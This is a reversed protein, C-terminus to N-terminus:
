RNALEKGVLEHRKIFHKQKTELALIRMKYTSEESVKSEDLSPNGFDKKIEEARQRIFKIRDIRQKEKHAERLLELIEDYSIWKTGDRDVMNFLEVLNNRSIQAGAKRFMANLEDLTIKKSGDKDMNEFAEYITM